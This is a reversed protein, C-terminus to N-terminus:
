ISAVSWAWHFGKLLANQRRELRRTHGSYCHGWIHVELGAVRLQRGVM